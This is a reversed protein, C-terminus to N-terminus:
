SPIAIYGRLLLLQLVAALGIDVLMAILRGISSKKKKEKEEKEEILPYLRLAPKKPLPPSTVTSPCRGRCSAQRL